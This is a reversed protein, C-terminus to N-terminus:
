KNPSLETGGLFLVGAFAAFVVKMRIKKVMINNRRIEVYVKIKQIYM